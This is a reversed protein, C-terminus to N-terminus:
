DIIFRIAKDQKDIVAIVYPYTLAQTVHENAAPDTYEVYVALRVGDDVVDKITVDYGGTSKEGRTVVLYTKSGITRVWQGENRLNKNVFDQISSPANSFAVLKFNVDKPYEEDQDNVPVKEGNDGDVIVKEFKGDVSRYLLSAAEARTLSKQPGLYMKGNSDKWGGMLKADLAAAVYPRLNPSIENYDAYKQIERYSNIPKIGKAKVLAVAVDERVARENPHFYLKGNTYRYGTLYNSSSQIESYAWFTKGVDEFTQGSPKNDLNLSLVLMKAYEARTVETNPRITNDPYGAFIGNEVMANIEQYAWHNPNLDKFMGIRKEKQMEQVWTPPAALAATAVLCISLLVILFVILNRKKM